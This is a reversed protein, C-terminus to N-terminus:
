WGFVGTGTLDITQTTIDRGFVSYIVTASNGVQEFMLNAVSRIAALRASQNAGGNDLSDNSFQWYGLHVSEQPTNGDSGTTLIVDSNAPDPVYDTGSLLTQSMNENFTIVDGNPATVSTSHSSPIYVTVGDLGNGNADQVFFSTEKVTIAAGRRQNTPVGIRPYAGCELGRANNICVVTAIDELDGGAQSSVGISYVADANENTADARALNNSEDFDRLTIMQPTSGGDM